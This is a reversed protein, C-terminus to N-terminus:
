GEFIGISYYQQSLVKSWGGGVGAKNLYLQCVVNYLNLTYLLLKNRYFLFSWCPHLVNKGRTWKIRPILLNYWWFYGSMKPLSSLFCSTKIFVKYSFASYFPYIIMTLQERSQGHNKLLFPTKKWCKWKSWHEM